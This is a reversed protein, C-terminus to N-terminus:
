GGIQHMSRDGRLFEGNDTGHCRPKARVADRVLEALQEDSGGARLVARADWNRSAFLCNRVQGDATLRLRGCRHCFPQTVSRIVGVRGGDAFQYVAAPGNAGLPQLAGLSATLTDLIEGGALVRDDSWEVGGGLPMYEIFRLELGNQRAFRALPVIEDETQGRVALTNLKIRRFGAARAAAIGELVRGLEDRGTIREFKRPDLTDLSINLRELGAARLAVAHEALLTGNTTMALDDVGPLRALLEVLRVVGKRVLPEGGTLRFKGVGLGVVVRVFREIEEFRLVDDHSKPAVGEPSMCYACRLNCRDTVSIRLDTHTRNHRDTLPV